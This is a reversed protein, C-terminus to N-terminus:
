RRAFLFGVTPQARVPVSECPIMRSTQASTTGRRRSRRAVEDRRDDRMPNRPRGPAPRGEERDDCDKTSPCGSRGPPAPTSPTIDRHPGSAAGARLVREEDQHDGEGPEHARMPKARLPIRCCQCTGVLDDLSVLAYAAVGASPYAACIMLADTTIKKRIIAKTNQIPPIIALGASTGAAASAAPASGTGAAPPEPRLAPPPPPGPRPGQARARAAEGSVQDLPPDRSPLRLDSPRRPPGEPVIRTKVRTAM